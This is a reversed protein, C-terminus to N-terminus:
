TVTVTVPNDGDTVNTTQTTAGNSWLYSTFGAGADLTASAGACYESAGSISVVPNANVVVTATQNITRQCTTSSADVVSVLNVNFTGATTTPVTITASNGTSVITQNTGGNINYTFTYPATGLSGTFTVVPDTDGVCVSVGGTVTASPLPNIIITATGTQPNLCTTSSADQVSVLDYVFTGATGTPVSVTVSSNGSATTVTQNPGNNITYTFTYPMTGGAGTFTIVPA